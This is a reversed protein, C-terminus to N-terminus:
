ECTNLFRVVDEANALNCGHKLLSKIMKAKRKITAPKLSKKSLLHAIYNTVAESVSPHETVTRPTPNSGV